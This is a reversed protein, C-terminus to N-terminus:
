PDTKMQQKIQNEAPTGSERTGETLGQDPSGRSLNTETPPVDVPQLHGSHAIIHELCVSIADFMTIFDYTIQPHRGSDTVAAEMEELRNDLYMKTEVLRAYWHQDM